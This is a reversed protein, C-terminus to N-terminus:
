VILNREQLFDVIGAAATGPDTLLRPEARAPAPAESIISMGSSLAESSLGLEALTLTEVPRTKATQMGKMTPYRPKNITEAMDVLCPLAASAFLDGQEVQRVCHVRGDELELTRAQSLVPRNLRAGAGAWMLSGDIDGSWPCYLYLDADLHAMLAALARTRPLMDAQDLEPDSLLVAKDAGMGLGQRLAGLVQSGAISFLTIESAIGKERLRVAEEVAHADFPNIAGPLTRAERTFADESNIAVGTATKFLVAIKM